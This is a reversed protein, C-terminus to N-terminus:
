LYTTTVASAVTESIVDRGAYVYSYSALPTIKRVRRGLPDYAFRVAEAGDRAVRVLENLANWEYTWSSTGDTKSVLNGNLDYGYQVPSGGGPVRYTSARVNGSADRAEVALATETGETPLDAEFANGPLQRAPQGEVTVTAPESTTGGVRVRGGPTEGLLRNRHDHAFTRGSGDKEGSVRNGVLDYVFAETHGGQEVGM